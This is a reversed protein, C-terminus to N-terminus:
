KGRGAQAGEEGGRCRPTGWEEEWVGPSVCVQLIGVQMGWGEEEEGEEQLGQMGEQVEQVEQERTQPGRGQKQVRGGVRLTLM